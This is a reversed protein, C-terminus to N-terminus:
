ADRQSVQVVNCEVASYKGSELNVTWRLMVSVGSVTYREM